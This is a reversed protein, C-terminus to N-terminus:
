PSVFEGRPAVLVSLFTRVLGRASRARPSIRARAACWFGGLVRIAVLEGMGGGHQGTRVRHFAGTLDSLVEAPLEANRFGRRRLIEAEALGTESGVLGEVSYIRYERHRRRSASSM